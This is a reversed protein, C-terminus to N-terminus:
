PRCGNSLNRLTRAAPDFRKSFAKGPRSRKLRMDTSWFNAAM